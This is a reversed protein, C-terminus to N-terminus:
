SFIMLDYAMHGGEGGFSIPINKNAFEFLFKPLHCVIIQLEHLALLVLKDAANLFPGPLGPLSYLMGDLFAPFTFVM